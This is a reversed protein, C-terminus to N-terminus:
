LMNYIFLYKDIKRQKQENMCIQKKETTIQEKLYALYAHM